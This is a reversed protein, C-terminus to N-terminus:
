IFIYINHTHIKYSNKINAEKNFTRYIGLSGLFALFASKFIKTFLNM